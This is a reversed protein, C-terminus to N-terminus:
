KTLLELVLSPSVNDNRNPLTVTGLGKSQLKANLSKLTFDVYCGSKPDVAQEMFKEYQAQTLQNNARMENLASVNAKRCAAMQERIKKFDESTPFPKSTDTLNKVYTKLEPGGTPFAMGFTIEQSETFNLDYEYEMAREEDYKEFGGGASFSWGWNGGGGPADPLGNAKLTRAFAGTRAALQTMLGDVAEVPYYKDFKEQTCQYLQIKIADKSVLKQVELRASARALGFWGSASVAAKFHEYTEKFKASILFHCRGRVGDFKMRFQVGMTAADNGGAQALARADQSDKVKIQFPIGAEVLGGKIIAQPKTGTWDVYQGGVLFYVQTETPSVFRFYAKGGQEEVSKSILDKASALTVADVYPQFTSTLLASVGDPDFSSIGSHVLGFALKKTEPNRVIRATSPVMWFNQVEKTNHNDPYITIIGEFKAPLPVPEELMPLAHSATIFYGTAIGILLKKVM